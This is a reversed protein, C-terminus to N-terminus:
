FRSTRSAVKVQDVDCATPADPQANNRDNLGNMDNMVSSEDGHETPHGLGLIHGIEHLAVKYYGLCSSVVAADNSVMIGGGRVYGDPRRSVSTIAGAVNNPMSTLIISLTHSSQKSSYRTFHIPVNALYTNWTEFARDVCYTQEPAWEGYYRYVFTTHASVSHNLLPPAVCSASSQRPFMEPDAPDFATEATIVSYTILAALSLM